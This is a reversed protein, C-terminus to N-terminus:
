KLIDNIRFERIYPQNEEKNLWDDIFKLLIPHIGGNGINHNNIYKFDGIYIKYFKLIMSINTFIGSSFILHFIGKMEDYEETSVRWKDLYKNLSVNNVAFYSDTGWSDTISRVLDINIYKKWKEKIYSPDCGMPNEHLVLALFYVINVLQNYTLEKNM